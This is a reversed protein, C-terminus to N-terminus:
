INRAPMAIVILQETHSGPSPELPPESVPLFLYLYISLISSMKYM